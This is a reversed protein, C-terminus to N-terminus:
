PGVEGRRAVSFWKDSLKNLVRKREDMWAHSAMEQRWPKEFLRCILAPSMSRNGNEVDSLYGASLNFRKAAARLTLKRKERWLKLAAGLDNIM